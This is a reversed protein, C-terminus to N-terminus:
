VANGKLYSDMIVPVAGFKGSLYDKRIDKDFRPSYDNLSYLQSSGDLEKQVFWIEDRRLLNNDLLSDQHTTVILQDHNLSVNGSLFLELFTKALNPHLSRDFEDIVYTKNFAKKKDLENVCIAPLLDLLRQTGDSEDEIDFHCVAGEPTTHAAQIAYAVPTNNKDLTFSLVKGDVITSIYPAGNDDLRSLLEKRINDLAAQDFDAIPVEKLSISEIGTDFLKLMQEYSLQPERNLDTAISAYRTQPFIIILKHSFFLVVALLIRGVTENLKTFAVKSILHNLFLENDNTFRMLTILEDIHEKQIGEQQTLETHYHYDDNTQNIVREYICTEESGEILYLSEREVKESSISFSYIYYYGQFVFEFCFCSIGNNSTTLKFPDVAIGLKQPNGEVILSKAFEMAKVINSKGSANAGYIVAARLAKLNNKHKLDVVHHKHRRLRTAPQMNLEVRENISRFNEVSFYILM